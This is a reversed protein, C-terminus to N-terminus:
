SLYKFSLYHLGVKGVQVLVDRLQHVSLSSRTAEDPHLGVSLVLNMPKEIKAPDVHLSYGCELVEGIIDRAELGNWPPCGTM